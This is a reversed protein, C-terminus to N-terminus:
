RRARTPARGLAAAVAQREEPSLQQESDGALIGKAYTRSDARGNIASLVLGDGVADLLAVSYSMRGAMDQFADYRVVAVNRVAKPDVGAALAPDARLAAVDARLRAMRRAM